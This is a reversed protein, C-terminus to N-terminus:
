FVLKGTAFLVGESNRRRTLGALVKGGAKNWRMMQDPILDYRGQNLVKLMTSNRFNTEGLNYMWSVLADFQNQTLKVKVMESVKSEFYAVDAALFMEAQAESITQGMKVNKTTGYGITVVGVADYYAKARFGEYTKILKLGTSSTKM